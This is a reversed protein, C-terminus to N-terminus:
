LALTRMARAFTNATKRLRGADADGTAGGSEFRLLTEGLRIEDANDLVVENSVPKGNVAVGNTSALPTLVIRGERERVLAHRRSVKPDLVQIDRGPARGLSIPRRALTFRLGASPGNVVVLSSM